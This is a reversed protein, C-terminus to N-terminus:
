APIRLTVTSSRRHTLFPHFYAKLHTGEQRTQPGAGGWWFKKASRYNMKENLSSQRERLASLESGSMGVKGLALAAGVRKSKGDATRIDGVAPAVSDDSDDDNVELPADEDLMEYDFGSGLVHQQNRDRRAKAAAAPSRVEEETRGGGRLDLATGTSVARADIAENHVLVRRTCEDAVAILQADLAVLEEDESENLDDLIEEGDSDNATDTGVISYDSECESESAEALGAAEAAEAAAEATAEAAM